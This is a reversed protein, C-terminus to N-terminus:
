PTHTPTPCQVCPTARYQHNHGKMANPSWNWRNFEDTMLLDRLAKGREGATPVVAIESVKSVALVYNLVVEVAPVPSSEGDTQGWCIHLECREERCIDGRFLCCCKAGM